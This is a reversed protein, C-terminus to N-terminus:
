DDDEDQPDLLLAVKMAVDRFTKAHPSDADAVTVPTGEDSLRRIEMNLPIAGLFTVGLRTAEDRAGGHGFIDSAEGCHPCIFTSMNEIIGLVPVDVNQFMKLGRRADILALDQPTSVIVAGSLPVQQAMTLQADGTGPPMDLVLIDLEGWEVENVLQMLASMIMPGRWIVPSEEDILFGMSMVKIGFKEIPVIRDNEIAPRESIGLLSPISPGYIDADLLGVKLGLAALGLALNVSTTSKGVGGKGSAVALIHRVGPIAERPPRMDPGLPRDPGRPLTPKKTMRRPQPAVGPGKRAAARDSTIAVLVNEVGEVGRVAAEARARLDTLDGDFGEPRRITFIVKSGEVQVDGILGASVIDGEGGPAEVSRLSELIREKM